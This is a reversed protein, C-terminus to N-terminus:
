RKNERKFSGITVNKFAHNQNYDTNTITKKLSSCIQHVHTITFTEM